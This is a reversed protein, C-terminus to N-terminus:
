DVLVKASYLWPRGLLMPFPSGTGVRIVVFNQLYTVQGIRTPIQSLRGAPVVRSQDAMQLIQDTEEFTTYGLNFATSELMLNVGSGGDVLVKSITCGGVEVVLEPAGYDEVQVFNLAVAPLRFKQRRKKPWEERVLKQYNPKDHLLQGITANAKQDKIDQIIDYEDPKLDPQIIVPIEDFRITRSSPKPTLGLDALDERVERTIDRPIRSKEIGKEVAAIPTVQDPERITELNFSSDSSSDDPEGVKRARTRRRDKRARRELERNKTSSRTAVRHVPQEIRDPLEM